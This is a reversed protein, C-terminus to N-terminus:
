QDPLVVFSRGALPVLGRGPFEGELNGTWQEDTEASGRFEAKGIFSEGGTVVFSGASDVGVRYDSFGYAEREILM